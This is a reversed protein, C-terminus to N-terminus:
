CIQPQCSPLFALSPTAVEFGAQHPHPCLSPSEESHSDANGVAAGDWPLAGRRNLWSLFGRNGDHSRISMVAWPNCHLICLHLLEPMRFSDSSYSFVCSPPIVPMFSLFFTNTVREHGVTVGHVTSRWAGRDTSNELCSYQLPNGNGEGPSRGLGPIM